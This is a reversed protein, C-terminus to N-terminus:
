VNVGIVEVETNDNNESTKNIPPYKPMKHLARLFMIYGTIMLISMIAYDFWIYLMYNVSDDTPLLLDTQMQYQKLQLIQLKHIVCGHFLSTLGIIFLSVKLYRSIGNRMSNNFYIGGEILIICLIASTISSIWFWNDPSIKNNLDGIITNIVFILIGLGGFIMFCIGSAKLNIFEDLKCIKFGLVIWFIKAFQPLYIFFVDLSILIWKETSYTIRGFILDVLLPWLQGIATNFLVYLVIISLGIRFLPKTRSAWRAKEAVSPYNKFAIPYRNSLDRVLVAYVEDTFGKKAILYFIWGIFLWVWWFLKTDVSIVTEDSEQKCKVCVTVLANKRLRVEDKRISTKYEPFRGKLIEAILGNSIGSTKPIRIFQKM